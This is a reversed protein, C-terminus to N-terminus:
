PKLLFVDLISVFVVGIIKKLVFPKRELSHLVFPASMAVLALQAMDALLNDLYLKRFLGKAYYM